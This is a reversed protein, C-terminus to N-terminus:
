VSVYQAGPIINEKKEPLPNLSIRRIWTLMDEMGGKCHGAIKQKLGTDMDKIMEWASLKDDAKFHNELETFAILDPGELVSGMSKLEAAPDIPVKVEGSEIDFVLKQAGPVDNVETEDLFGLGSISLTVRRKAKTECKMLENALNVGYLGKISVAGTSEDQRGTGDVAQATVIYLDDIKQKSTIRISIKRKERIQETGGKGCYLGERGDKFKIYQFPQTLPNLGQTACINKYHTVKEIPTLGSLDGKLILKELAQEAEKTVAVEADPGIILENSM